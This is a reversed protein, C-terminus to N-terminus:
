PKRALFFFTGPQTGMEKMEFGAKSLSNEWFQRPPLHGHFLIPGFSFNLWFDKNLVILLFEGGPKLVRAAEGLSQNIGERNLHDIAYASVAADFSAPDFPMHRMDGPQISARNAVGVAEFNATLKRVGAGVVDKASGTVGFHDEYSAGFLDLAVLTSKPRAELVMLSSRGTGAGMDLVKGTGSRLFSETPMATTKGIRLGYQVVLFAAISWLALAGVAFQLWKPWKHKLALAFIPLALATVILHGYVIPWPYGFDINSHM